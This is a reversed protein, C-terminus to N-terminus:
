TAKEAALESVETILQKLTGIVDFLFRATVSVKAGIPYVAFKGSKELYAQSVVGNNHVLLDRRCKAEIFVGMRSESIMSGKVFEQLRRFWKEVREYKWDLLVRDIVTGKLSDLDDSELVDSMKLQRDQISGPFESLWAKFLGFLFDEFVGIVRELVAETLYVRTYHQSNEVLNELQLREGSLGRFRFQTGHRALLQLLRWAERTEHLYRACRDLETQGSETLEVIRSKLSM